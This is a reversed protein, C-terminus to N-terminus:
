MIRTIDPLQKGICHGGITRELLLLSLEKHPLTCTHTLNTTSLAINHCTNESCKTNGTLSIGGISRVLRSWVVLRLLVLPRLNLFCRRKRIVLLVPCLTVKANNLRWLTRFNNTEVLTIHVCLSIHCFSTEILNKKNTALIDEKTGFTFYIINHQLRFFLVLSSRRRSMATATSTAKSKMKRRKIMM